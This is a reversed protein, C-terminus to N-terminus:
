HRIEVNRGDFEDFATRRHRLRCGARIQKVMLGGNEARPRTPHGVSSYIPSVTM